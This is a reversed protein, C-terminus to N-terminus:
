ADLWGARLGERAARVAAAARTPAALKELVREVHKGATRPSIVLRRAIAENSRGAALLTLVELERRTLGHVDAAPEVAALALLAPERCAILQIRAFGGGVAAPWLFREEGGAALAGDGRAAAGAVAGGGLGELARRAVELAPAGPALLAPREVGPLPVVTGGATLGIAAREGCLLRRLALLSGTADCLQALAGNLAGITDCALDSPHREDDVSLHLLGVLRGDDSRLCMSLGERFGSPLLLRGITGERVRAQDPVDRMRMPRCSRTMGLEACEAVLEAGILHRAVGRTYGEHVLGDFREGVPDWAALEAGVFPVLPRLADLASRARDEASDPRGVAYAVAAAARLAASEM